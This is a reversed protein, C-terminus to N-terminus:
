PEVTKDINIIYGFKGRKITISDFDNDLRANLSAILENSNKAKISECYNFSGVNGCFKNLKLSGSGPSKLWSEVLNSL